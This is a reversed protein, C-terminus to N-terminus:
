PKSIDESGTTEDIMTDGLISGPTADWALSLLPLIMQRVESAKEVTLGTLTRQWLPREGEMVTLRIGYRATKDEQM